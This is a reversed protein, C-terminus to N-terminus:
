RWFRPDSIGLNSYLDTGQGITNDSTVADRTGEWIITADESGRFAGMGIAFCPSGYLYLLFSVVALVPKASTYRVPEGVGFFLPKHGM